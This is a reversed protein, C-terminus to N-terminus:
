REERYKLALEQAKSLTPGKNEKSADKAGWMMDNADEVPGLPIPEQIEQVIDIDRIFEADEDIDDDRESGAKACESGEKSGNPSNHM